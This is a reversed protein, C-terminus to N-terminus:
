KGPPSFCLPLHTSFHYMYVVVLVALQDCSLYLVSPTPPLVEFGIESVSWLFRQGLGCIYIGLGFAYLYCLNSCSLQFSSCSHNAVSQCSEMDRCRYANACTNHVYILGCVYRSGSSFRASLVFVCLYEFFCMGVGSLEVCGSIKPGATTCTLPVLLARSTEPLHFKTPAPSSPPLPRSLPLELHSNTELLLRCSVVHM